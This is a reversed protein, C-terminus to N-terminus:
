GAAADALDHPSEPTDAEPSPMPLRTRASTALERAFLVDDGGSAARGLRRAIVYPNYRRPVRIASTGLSLLFRREALTAPRLIRGNVRM